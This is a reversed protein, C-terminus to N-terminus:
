SAKPKPTDQGPAVNTGPKVPADPIPAVQENIQNPTDQLRESPPVPQHERPAPRSPDTPTTQVTKSAQDKSAQDTRAFAPAAAALQTALILGSLAQTVRAFRM